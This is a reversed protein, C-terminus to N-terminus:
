VCPQESCTSRGPLKCGLSAFAQVLNPDEVASPTSRSYLFTMLHKVAKQQQAAPVFFGMNLLTTAEKAPEQTKTAAAAALSVPEVAASHAANSSGEAHSSGDARPRKHPVNINDHKKCTGKKKTLTVPLLQQQTSAQSCLLVISASCCPRSGVQYSQPIM